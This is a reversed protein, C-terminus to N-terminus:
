AKRQRFQFNEKKNKSLFLPVGLYKTHQQLSKLGWITKIQNRFQTHVGKSFFVGFKELNISQDSWSYYTNICSMLTRVEEMRAGCFLISDDGYCLKTIPPASVGIKVGNMRGLNVEKDIIRLLVESGLIFLNPSLPDGQRLGRSPIFNSFIGGNILLTFQVTSVCQM